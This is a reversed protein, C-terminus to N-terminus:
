LFNTYFICFIQTFFDFSKTYFICFIPTFFQHLFVFDKASLFNTDFAFYQHLSFYFNHRLFGINIYLISGVKKIMKFAMFNKLESFSWKESSVNKFMSFLEFDLYVLKANPLYNEFLFWSQICRIFSNKFCIVTM